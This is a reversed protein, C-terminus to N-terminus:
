RALGAPLAWEPKPYIGQSGCVFSSSNPRQMHADQGLQMRKYVSKWTQFHFMAGSDYRRDPTVLRRARRYLSGNLFLLDDDSGDGGNTLNACVRWRADVWRSCDAHMAVPLLPGAPVYTGPLLLSHGRDAIASADDGEDAEPGLVCAGRRARPTLGAAHLLAPLIPCQRVSGGVVALDGELGFDALFKNAIKVRIGPTSYVASSYCGEASIFRVRPPLKGEKLAAASMQKHAAAKYALERLLGAGLHECKAFLSNVFPRNAHM